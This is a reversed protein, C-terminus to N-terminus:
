EKESNEELEMSDIIQKLTIYLINKFNMKHIQAKGKHRLHVGFRGNEYYGGLAEHQYKRASGSKQKLKEVGLSKIMWKEIPDFDFISKENKKFEDLEQRLKEFKSL